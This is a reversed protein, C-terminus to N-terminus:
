IYDHSLFPAELMQFIIHCECISRSPRRIFTFLKVFCWCWALSSWSCPPNLRFCSGESIVHLCLFLFFIWSCHYWTFSCMNQRPLYSHSWNRSWYLKLRARNKEGELFSKHLYDTMSYNRSGSMMWNLVYGWKKLGEGLDNVCARIKYYDRKLVRKVLVKLSEGHFTNERLAIILLCLKNLLYDKALPCQCLFTVM